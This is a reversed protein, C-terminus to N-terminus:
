KSSPYDRTLRRNHYLTTSTLRSLRSLVNNILGLAYSVYESLISLAIRKSQM